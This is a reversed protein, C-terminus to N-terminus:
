VTADALARYKSKTSSRSVVSQKKTHWSILSDGLYFYYSITSRRDTPDGVWDADSYSSLVISSQFSFIHVAYAIDPRTMTLNILSGVLQQYLSVDELPVSNSHRSVKLDLFCKLSGLDKMEFHQGLYHQLDSIVMLHRENEGKREWFGEIERDGDRDGGKGVTVWGEALGVGRRGMGRCGVDHGGVDRCTGHGGVGCGGMGRRGVCCVGVRSSESRGQQYIEDRRYM